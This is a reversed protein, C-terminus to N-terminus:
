SLMFTLDKFHKSFPSTFMLVNTVVSFLGNASSSWTIYDFAGSYSSIFVKHYIVRCTIDNGTSTPLIFARLNPEFPGSHSLCCLWSFSIYLPCSVPHDDCVCVCVCVSWAFVGWCVTIRLCCRLSFCQSSRIENRDAPLSMLLWLHNLKRIWGGGKNILWCPKKARTSPDRRSKIRQELPIQHFCLFQSSPSLWTSFLPSCFLTASTHCTGPNNSLWGPCYM